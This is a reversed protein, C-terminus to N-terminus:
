TSKEPNNLSSSIEFIFMEANGGMQLLLYVYLFSGPKTINVTSLFNASYYFFYSDNMREYLNMIKEIM